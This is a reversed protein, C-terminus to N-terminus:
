QDTGGRHYRDAILLVRSVINDNQCVWRSMTIMWTCLNALFRATLELIPACHLHALPNRVPVDFFMPMETKAATVRKHLM